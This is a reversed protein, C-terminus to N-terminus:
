KLLETLSGNKGLVANRYAILEDESVLAQIKSLIESELATIKQLM